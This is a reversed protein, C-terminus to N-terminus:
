ETEVTTDVLWIEDPADTRGALGHEVAELILIHNSLILDGNELVLISRAGQDKWATLKPLKKNLAAKVREKRLEEPDPPAVRAALLRGKGKEPMWWGTERYLRIDGNLGDVSGRRFNSYGRLKQDRTPQEACEAHLELAKERVWAIIAAQTKEMDGRKIGKSPDISFVLRFMGPAPLKHDLANEIPAIFAGFDVGTNIQGQFAEVITHEIAYEKGALDFVYEVPNSEGADEPSYANSRTANTLAELARAVADCAKRENDIPRGPM